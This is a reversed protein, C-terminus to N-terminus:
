KVKRVPSSPVTMPLLVHYHAKKIEGDEPNVDKDHLPSVLVNFKMERLIDLWNKPASEPYVITAYNRTRGAGSSKKTGM